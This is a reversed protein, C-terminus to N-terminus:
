RRRLGIGRREWHSVTIPHGSLQRAAVFKEIGVPIGGPLQRHFGELFINQLTPFAETMRGGVLEQLAPAIQRVSGMSVYLNKVASFPHFMALWQMKEIDDVRGTYGNGYIYLHEVMYTSPFFSTLGTARIFAVKRM